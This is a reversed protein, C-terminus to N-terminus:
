VIESFCEMNAGGRVCARILALLQILYTIHVSRFASRINTVRVPDCSLGINNEHTVASHQATCQLSREKEKKLIPKEPDRARGREKV